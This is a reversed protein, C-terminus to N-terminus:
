GGASAAKRAEREKIREVWRVLVVSGMYLLFLPVAMLVISFFDNSPTIAGGLAAILIGYRWGKLLGKSTILGMFGGMMLVVPLQFAIGFAALMKVLFLIYDNPDQMLVAPQPFDLMYSLFWHMAYFMTFYAILVGSVLLLVSIPILMKLPRREQPTLAPTIFAGLEWLVLPLVLLFGYVISVKLRVTFPEYFNRFVISMIPRAPPNDHLNRIDEVVKNFDEATPTGKVMRSHLETLDVVPKHERNQRVLEQALPRYLLGYLPEFFQYALFAGVVLYLISRILRSRLEALHETLEMRKEEPTLPHNPPVRRKRDPNEMSIDM